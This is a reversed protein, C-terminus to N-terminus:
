SEGREETDVFIVAGNPAFLEHQEVHSALQDRDISAKKDSTACAVLVTGILVGNAAVHSFQRALRKFFREPAEGPSQNVIAVGTRDHVSAFAQDPWSAGPELVVICGAPSSTTSDSVLSIATDM